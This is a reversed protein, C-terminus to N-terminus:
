SGAGALDDLHIVRDFRDLLKHNHTVVLMAARSDRASEILLDIVGDANGPDLNGTPEDAIILEPGTVLARCVAVRQREGQSLRGPRRRLVHSVGLSGALERARGRVSSVPGLAGSLRYPLVINNFASLYELLEFEQFVMGIRRIREARRRSESLGSLVVDGLVVRGSDPVLVGAMLNILTTKGCGSAGVCAVCEGRDVRLSPVRLAFGDAGPYQYSVEELQAAPDSM